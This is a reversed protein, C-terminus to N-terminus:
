AMTANSLGHLAFSRTGVDYAAGASWCRLENDHESVAEAICEGSRERMEARVIDLSIHDLGYGTIADLVEEAGHEAEEQVALLIDLLVARTFWVLFWTAVLALM